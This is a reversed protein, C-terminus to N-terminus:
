RRDERDEELLLDYEGEGGIMMWAGGGTVTGLGRKGGVLAEM